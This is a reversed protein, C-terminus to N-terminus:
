PTISQILIWRKDGANSDPAVVDPSSEGTGSDDDLYYFHVETTTTVIARDGDALNQGDLSDLSGTAGGTLSTGYYMKIKAFCLTFILCIILVIILKKSM